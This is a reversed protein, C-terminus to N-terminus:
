ENEIAISKMPKGAVRLSPNYKAMMDPGNAMSGAAFPVAKAHIRVEEGTKLNKAVVGTVTGDKDIILHEGKM